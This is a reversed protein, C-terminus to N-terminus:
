LYFFIFSIRKRQRTRELVPRLLGFCKCAPWRGGGERVDDDDNEDEQECLNPLRLLFVFIM